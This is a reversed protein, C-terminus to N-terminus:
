VSCGLLQEKLEDLHHIRIVREDEVRNIPAGNYLQVTKVGANLGAEVGKPTDDIYLCDSPLFGMNMASYM